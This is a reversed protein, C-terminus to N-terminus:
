QDLQHLVFVSLQLFVPALAGTKKYDQAPAKTAEGADRRVDPPIEFLGSAQGCPIDRPRLAGQARIVGGRRLANERV